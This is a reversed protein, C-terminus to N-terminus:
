KHVRLLPCEHPFLQLCDVPGDMRIFFPLFAMLALPFFYQRVGSSIIAARLDLSVPSKNCGAPSMM